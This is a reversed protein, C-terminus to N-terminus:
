FIDTYFRAPKINLRQQAQKLDESFLEDYNEALLFKAAKGRQYAEILMKIIQLRLPYAWFTTLSLALWALSRTQAFSFMTLCMEGLGTPPYGTLIHWADHTDRYRRAMWSYPHPAEIWQDHNKRKSIKILFDQNPFVKISEKGVSGEPRQDLTSFYKSIEESEYAVKAGARSELLKNYCYKLSPGSLNKVVHSVFIIKNPNHNIIHKLSRLALIPHLKYDGHEM